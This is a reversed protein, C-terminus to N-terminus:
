DLGIRIQFADDGRGRHADGRGRAIQRGRRLLALDLQGPEAERVLHALVDLVARHFLELQPNRLVDAVEGALGGRREHGTADAALLALLELGPTEALVRDAGVALDHEARERREVLAVDVLEVELVFNVTVSEEEGSVPMSVSDAGVRGRARTPTNPIPRAAYQGCNSPSLSRM